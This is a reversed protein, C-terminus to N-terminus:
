YNIIDRIFDDLLEKNESQKKIKPHIIKNNYYKSPINNYSLAAPFDM